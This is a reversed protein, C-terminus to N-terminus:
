GSIDGSSEVQGNSRLAAPSCKMLTARLALFIAAVKWCPMGNDCLYVLTLFTGHIVVSKM